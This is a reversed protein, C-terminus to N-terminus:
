MSIKDTSVPTSYVPATQRDQMEVGQLGSLLNGAAESGAVALGGEFLARVSPLFMSGALCVGAAILPVANPKDKFADSKELTNMLQNAGVGGGVIMLTRTFDFKSKTKSKTM